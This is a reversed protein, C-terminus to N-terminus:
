FKETRNGIYLGLLYFSVAKLSIYLFHGFRHWSMNPFAGLLEHLGNSCFRFPIPSEKHFERLPHSVKEPISVSYHLCKPFHGFLLPSGIPTNEELDVDL